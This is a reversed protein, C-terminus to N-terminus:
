EGGRMYGLSELKRITEEDLPTEPEILEVTMAGADSLWQLLRAFEQPYAAAVNNLEKPDDVLHYLESNEPHDRHYILKWNQDMVCFLLDDQHEPVPVVGHAFMDLTNLAEAYALRPPEAAGAIIPLLSKGEMAAPPQLGLADLITPLVDTCRVLQDVVRNRPGDPLRIILPLWIQEQYLLRHQMWGHDGLGQGHDAVVAIITNHYQGADKLWDLLRGLHADMFFVEPDYLLVKFNPASRSYGWRDTVGKPPVVRPDHPDFYHVWLCFPREAKNLWQLTANTTTDARRQQAIATRHHDWTLEGGGPQGSAATVPEQLGTEFTDFGWHLGFRESAPYASIFAATAWGQSKLITALTPHAASLYHGVPGYFVRVDHQYPNLGTLISAHAVPTVAATSIALEFRVGDAALADLNPSTNKPYGYCGLRDARTTDLTILLVNYQPAPTVKSSPVYTPILVVAAIVVTAGAILAAKLASGRTVAWGLVCSELSAGNLRPGLALTSRSTSHTM